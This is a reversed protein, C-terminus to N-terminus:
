NIKMGFCTVDDVQELSGQWSEFAENFKFVQKNLPIESYECMLERIQKYKFKKGKPGGFQDPFGDTLLYITDGIKCDLTYKNFPETKLGKGIPMKDTPNIIMQKERIIIPANYAAAYTITRTLYDICLLTGDMGDQQEEQSLTEILRQRVYDFILNPETINKENIAENLFSINLLSMFAGPVGHGTSDCVAIFFKTDKKTAWYFDGSVIDKPKYFIFFDFLLNNKIYDNTTLAAYQIRSAYKISDTIERNKHAIENKQINIQDLFQKLELHKTREFETEQRASKIEYQTQINNLKQDSNENFLDEYAKHYKKYWEFSQTVNGRKEEIQSFALYIKHIDEKIGINLAAILAQNLNIDIETSFVDLEILVQAIQIHTAISLVEYNVSNSLEFSQKFAKIAKELQDTRYFIIGINHHVWSQAQISAHPNKLCKDFWKNAEEFNGMEMYTEGINVESSAISEKDDIETRIQLCLQNCKLRNDNDGQYMYVAGVSNLTDAEGKKDKLSRFIELAIMSKELSQSYNGFRWLCYGLNRSSEAIGRQYSNIISFRETDNALKWSARLDSVRIDWSNQNFEDIESMSLGPVLDDVNDQFSNKM